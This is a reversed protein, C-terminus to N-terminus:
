PELNDKSGVVANRPAVHTDTKCGCKIIELIYDPGAKTNDPLSTPYLTKNATDRKWGYEEPNLERNISISRWLAAKFHGRKVNEM